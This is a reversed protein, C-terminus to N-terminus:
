TGSNPVVIAYRIHVEQMDERSRKDGAYPTDNDKLPNYVGGCM